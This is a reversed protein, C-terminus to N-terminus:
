YKELTLITGPSYYLLENDLNTQKKENQKELEHINNYVSM